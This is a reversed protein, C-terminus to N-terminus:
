HIDSGRYHHTSVASKSSYRQKRRGSSPPSATFASTSFALSLPSARPTIQPRRSPIHNPHNFVNSQHPYKKRKAYSMPRLRRMISTSNLNPHDLASLAKLHPQFQICLIRLALAPSGRSALSSERRICLRGCGRVM